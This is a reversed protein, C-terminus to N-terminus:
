PFYFTGLKGNRSSHDFRIENFRNVNRCAAPWDNWQRSPQQFVYDAACWDNFFMFGLLVTM